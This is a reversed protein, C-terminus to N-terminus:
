PPHLALRLEENVCLTLSGHAPSGTLRVFQTGYDAALLSISL